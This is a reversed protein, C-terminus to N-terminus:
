EHSDLIDKVAEVVQQVSIERMCKTTAQSLYDAYICGSNNKAHIYVSRKLIKRHVEIDDYGHM